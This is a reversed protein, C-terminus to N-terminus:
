RTFLTGFPHAAQMPFHLNFPSPANGLLRKAVCFLCIYIRRCQKRCSRARETRRNNRSEHM